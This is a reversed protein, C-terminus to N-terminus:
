TPSLASVYLWKRGYQQIDQQYHYIFTQFQLSSANVVCFDIVNDETEFTWEYFFLIDM